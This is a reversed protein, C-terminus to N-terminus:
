TISRKRAARYVRSTFFRLASSFHWFLFRAEQRSARRADHQFRLTTDLRVACGALRARTCFEVDEMYLRYREDMGDLRGYLGGPMLLFFGALWDPSLLEGEPVHVPPNREAMRRRIMEMPTPLPRFSDQVRGQVDVALPAILDAEGAQLRKTLRDFIPELFTVDPNLICFLEGQAHRYAANHNAAFGRPRENRLMTVEGWGAAAVEPLDDGLNGTLILHLRAPNEHVTLSALLGEMLAASGHSVISVSILPESVAGM